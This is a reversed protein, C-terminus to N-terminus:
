RHLKLVMEVFEELDFDLVPEITLVKRPYDLDYFDNFRATPLPAQSIERYGADRNTELTTVLIVRDVNANFWDLYQEFCAPNKSQFIYTKPKRPKHNDIAKFTERVFSPGYFSIDGTGFVFVIIEKWEKKGSPIKNLRGPHYHPSYTYCDPCNLTGAVRKLMRKFSKVCYVCYYRCGVAPNWTKTGPYMNSHM